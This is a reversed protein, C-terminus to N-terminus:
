RTKLTYAALAGAASIAAMGLLCAVYSQTFDLVSGILPQALTAGVNACMTTIGFGVSALNQGLIEPPLSSVIPPTMAAAVGLGIIFIVLALDFTFALVVFALSMLLLGIVAFLKRRGTRDSMYGFFPVCFIAAWSLLSAYVSAQVGLVDKFREFLTPAWTTFSLAAAQFFLWVFGLKWIEFSRFARRVNVAAKRESLPGEKITVAFVIAASIAVGSCVYFPFRWGYADMLLSAVPFAIVTSLPMNVGYIGMAKGLEERAFWQAIIAPTGIFIFTGGIGLILRGSLLIVFSDAVATVFSGAVVCILSALGVRFTGYKRVAVGAPLSLFVGPVLVISMLLAAQADSEISFEAKVSKLLPPGVQFAFAFAMFAFLSTFLVSWRYWSHQVQEGQIRM